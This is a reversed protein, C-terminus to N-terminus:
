HSAYDEWSAEAEALRSPLPSRRGRRRSLDQNHRVIELEYQKALSGLRLRTVTAILAPVIDPLSDSSSGSFRAMRSPDEAILEAWRLRGSLPRLRRHFQETVRGGGALAQIPTLGVRRAVLEQIPQGAELVDDLYVRDFGRAKALQRLGQDDPTVKEILDNRFALQEELPIEREHRAAIFSRYRDGVEILLHSPLPAADRAWPRRLRPRYLRHHRRRMQGM